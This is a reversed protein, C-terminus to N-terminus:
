EKNDNAGLLHKLGDHAKDAIDLTVKKATKLGEQVSDKQVFDNVKTSVNQVVENDSLSAVISDVTRNISDIVDQVRDDERFDKLAKKTKEFLSDAKVKAKEFAAEAEESSKADNVAKKANTFIRDLESALNDVIQQKRDNDKTDEELKIVQYKTAQEYEDFDNKKM